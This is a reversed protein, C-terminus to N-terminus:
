RELAASRAAAHRLAGSAADLPPLTYEIRAWLQANDMQITLRELQTDIQARRAELVAALSGIGGRYSALAAATRGAALLVLTADYHTFNVLSSLVLMGAKNPCKWIYILTTKPM